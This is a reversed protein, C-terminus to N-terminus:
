WSAHGLAIFAALAVWFALSFLAIGWVARARLAPDARMPQLREPARPEDPTGLPLIRTNKM